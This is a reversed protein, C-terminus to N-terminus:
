EPETEIDVWVSGAGVRMPTTGTIDMHTPRQVNPHKVQLRVGAKAAIVLAQRLAVATTLLVEVGDQEKDTFQTM